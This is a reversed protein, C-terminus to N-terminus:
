GINETGDKERAEAEAELSGFSARVCVTPKGPFNPWPWPCPSNDYLRTTYVLIRYYCLMTNM